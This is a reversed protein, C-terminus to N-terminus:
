AQAAGQFRAYTEDIKEAMQRDTDTVKGGESHTTLTITVTNYSNKWDPHHDFREAWMAVETMFSFAQRFNKFEFQRVLKNDRENWM